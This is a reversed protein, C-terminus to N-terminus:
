DQADIPAFYSGFIRMSRGDRKKRIEGAKTLKKLHATVARDPFGLGEDRVEKILAQRTVGEPGAQALMREITGGADYARGPSYVALGSGGKVDEIEIRMPASEAAWRNKAHVLMKHGSDPDEELGWLQDVQAKIDSAGRLRSSLSTGREKSPKGLHHLLVVGAGVSRALPKLRSAYWEAMGTNDNEKRRHFRILSDLLIWDPRWAQVEHRLRHFGAEDDLNIGNDVLYRIELGQLDKAELDKAILSRKLRYRVLSQPQEEDVVLIRQPELDQVPNIKELWPGRRALALALDLLLLSKGAGSEGALIALDGKALWGDLVYPIEIEPGTAAEVLDLERFGAKGNAAVLSGLAVQAEELTKKLSEKLDVESEPGVDALAVRRLKGLLGRKTTLRQVRDVMLDFLAPDDGAPSDIAWTELLESSVELEAALDPGLQELVVGASIPEGRVLATAVLRYVAKRGEQTFDETSLEEAMRRARDQDALSAGLIDIEAREDAIPRM